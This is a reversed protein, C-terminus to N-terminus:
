GRRVRRMADALPLLQVLLIGSLILACGFMGHLNLTEGLWLSGFIAAFATETSLIIATDAAPTYRQGVVQATFGVGVSLFGAYAIAGAAAQLGEWSVPEIALAVTTGLVGCVLFQGCAITFPGAGRRGSQGVLLVHGAWFLASAIVWLDGTNITLSQAGTLLWTGTLCGVIAPWVSWHPLRRTIMWNTLPVLPVYLATLFGANTITTTVIGIQQFAAGLFLLLGLGLILLLSQAALLPPHDSVSQQVQIERWALPAVILAGMLFRAGTFTYPGVSAMGLNQAVFASGWIVAVLLLLLDAQLRSMHVSLTSRSRIKRNARFTPPLLQGATM